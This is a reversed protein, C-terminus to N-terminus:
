HDIDGYKNFFVWICLIDHKFWTELKFWTGSIDCCSFQVVHFPRTSWGYRGINIKGHRWLVFITTTYLRPQFRGAWDNSLKYVAHWIKTHRINKASSLHFISLAYHCVNVVLKFLFTRYIPINYFNLLQHWKSYMFSNIRWIFSNDTLVDMLPLVTHPYSWNNSHIRQM